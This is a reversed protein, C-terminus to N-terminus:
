IMFPLDHNKEGTGIYASSFGTGNKLDMKFEFGLWKLSRLSIELGSEGTHLVWEDKRENCHGLVPDLCDPNNSTGARRINALTRQETPNRFLLYSAFNTAEASSLGLHFM